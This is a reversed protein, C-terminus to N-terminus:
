TAPRSAQQRFPREQNRRFNGVKAEEGLDTGPRLRAFPGIRCRAGIRAGEIVTYAEIRADDGVEADEIVAGPGIHVREGLM